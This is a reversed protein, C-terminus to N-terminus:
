LNRPVFYINTAKGKPSTEATDHAPHENREGPIEKLEYNSGEYEPLIPKKDSWYKEGSMSQLVYTNGIVM